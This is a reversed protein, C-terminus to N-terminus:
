SPVKEVAAPYEQWTRPPAAIPPVPVPGSEAIMDAGTVAQRMAAQLEAPEFWTALAAVALLCDRGYGASRLWLLCCCARLCCLHSTACLDISSPQDFAFSLRILLLVFARDSNSRSSNGCCRAIDAALLVPIADRAGGVALEPENLAAERRIRPNRRETSTATRDLDAVCRDLWVLSGLVVAIVRRFREAATEKV